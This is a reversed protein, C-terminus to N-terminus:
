AGNVLVAIPPFIAGQRESDCDPYSGPHATQFVNDCVSVDHILADDIRVSGSVANVRAEYSGAVFVWSVDAGKQYPIKEFVLEPKTKKPLSLDIKAFARSALNVAEVDSILPSPLSDDTLLSSELEVVRGSEDDVMVRLNANEVRAGRISQRFQYITTKSDRRYEHSFNLEEDGNFPVLQAIVDHVEGWDSGPYYTAESIGEFGKDLRIIRNTTESIRFSDSDLHSLLQDRQAFKTEIASLDSKDAGLSNVNLTTLAGSSTLDTAVENLQQDAAYSPDQISHSFYNTAIFLVVGAIVLSAASLSLPRM